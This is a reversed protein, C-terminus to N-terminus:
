KIVPSRLGVQGVPLDDLLHLLNNSTRMFSIPSNLPYKTASKRMIGSAIKHTVILVAKNAAAVESARYADHLWTLGEGALGASVGM